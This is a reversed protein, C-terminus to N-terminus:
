MGVEVIARIGLGMVFLSVLGYYLFARSGMSKRYSFALAITIFVLVGYFVHFRAATYRDSSALTVGSLVEALMAVEAVFTVGWVV